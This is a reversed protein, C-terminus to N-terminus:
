PKEAEKLNSKALVFDPFLSLAQKFATAADPKRGQELLMVGAMNHCAAALPVSQRETQSSNIDITKDKIEPDNLLKGLTVDCEGFRKLTYQMTAVEYLHYLNKSIPYLREFDTLSEKIMNVNQHAIARLELATPKNPDKELLDTCVLITQPWAGRQFYLISLTDLFNINSESISLMQYVADSAVALDNYRVARDFVSKFHATGFQAQAPQPAPTSEPKTKTKQASLNGGFTGWATAAIALVIVTNKMHQFYHIKTPIL